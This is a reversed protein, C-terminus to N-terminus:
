DTAPPAWYGRSPRPLGLRDCVKAHGVDSFGLRPAVHPMPESWVLEYLQEQSLRVGKAPM